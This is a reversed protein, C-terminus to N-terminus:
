STQLSFRFLIDFERDESLDFTVSIMQGSLRVSQDSSALMTAGTPLRINVTYPIAGTGPQKQLKLRYRWGQAEESLVAEPLQYELVTERQAGTPVVLFTSLEYSTAAGQHLMVAGDDGTGWFTWAPPVLQTQAGVLSGGNPILVRLYNWYCGLYYGSYQGVNSRKRFNCDGSGDLRNTHRIALTALPKGPDSLDVSYDVAEQIFSYVKNYGVNSDVLMLYDHAGPQVAGDWGRRALVAAAPDQWVYILLHRQNLARKATHALAPLEENGSVGELRAVIAQGLPGIFDKRRSWDQANWYGLYQGRMYAIVHEASIPEATGEVSVPEIAELLLQIAQEDFAIVGDLRCGQAAQYRELANRASTPFDPSWNADRFTWATLGLYRRLPEPPPPYDALHQDVQYSDGFVLESARGGDFTLVGAAGIFGGTARIESTDQALLLYSRPGDAGLLEPLALALDVADLAQPLLAGSVQLLDRLSPSLDDVPISDRISTAQALASRATELRPRAAALRAVLAAGSPQEAHEAVLTALTAVSEDGAIALNVLLDLLPEASALDPGYTPVWGLRRLVPFLPGAERRFVLADSRLQAFLLGATALRDASPEARLLPALAQVDVRLAQAGSYLRWTKWSLAVLAILALAMVFHSLRIACIGQRRLIPISLRKL